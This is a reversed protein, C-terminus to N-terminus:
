ARRYHLEAERLQGALHLIAGLNNHADAYEADLRIATQFEEAAGRFNRLLSLALGRNYHTPASDPNLRLSEIFEADAETARGDRLYLMGVGDHGVPNSPDGQM